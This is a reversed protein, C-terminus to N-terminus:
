TKDSFGLVNHVHVYFLEEGLKKSNVEGVTGTSALFLSQNIGESGIVHYSLSPSGNSSKKSAKIVIVHHHSAVMGSDISM